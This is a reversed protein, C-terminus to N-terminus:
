RAASVTGVPQAAQERALAAVHAALGALFVTRCPEDLRVQKGLLFTRNLSHSMLGSRAHPEDPAIAHVIEHAVVRGLAVGLAEAAGPASPMRAESGLTWHLSDLFSWIARSPKQDRMVLGLVKRNRRHPLPDTPLVIVPVEPRASEGITEEDGAVAFALDVELDRFIGRLEDGMAAISEPSLAKTPDFLLVRLAPAERDPLGPLSSGSGGLGRSTTILEEPFSDGGHSPAVL